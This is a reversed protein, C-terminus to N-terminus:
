HVAVEHILHFHHQLRFADGVHWKGTFFTSYGGDRLAEPLTTMELPLKHNYAAPLYRDNRNLKRWDEGSRAGIWDTIQHRATFQGSMISARSPSCVRSASYGQDFVIANKAIKDINPTEYFDSGMFSIDYLGFDDALIFVFNPQSKSDSVDTSKQSNCSILLALCIFLFVRHM